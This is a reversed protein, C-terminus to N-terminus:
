VVADERVVAGPRLRARSSAQLRMPVLLVEVQHRRPVLRTFGLSKLDRHVVGLAHVHALARALQRGVHRGQVLRSEEHTDAIFRRLDTHFAEMVLVMQAEGDESLVFFHEHLRAVGACDRLLLMVELERSPQDSYRPTVKLCVLSDREYASRRLALFAASFAGCGLAHTVDYSASSLPWACLKSCDALLATPDAPRCASGPGLDATAAPTTTM